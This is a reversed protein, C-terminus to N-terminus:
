DFFSWFVSFRLNRGLNPYLPVQFYESNLLNQFTLKVTANGLRANAFIDIGNNTIGETISSEINSHTLPMYSFGGKKDFMTFDAGFKVISKQIIITFTPSVTFWYLPTLQQFNSNQNQNDTALEKQLNIKFNVEFIDKEFFTNNSLITSLQVFGGVVDQNLYRSLILNNDEFRLLPANTIQRFYSNVSFIFTSDNNDYQIFVTSNQETNTVDFTYRDNSNHNNSIDFTLTENTSIQYKLKAGFNTLTTYEKFLRLGGSLSLKDFIQYHVSTFLNFRLEDVERIFYTPQGKTYILDAGNNLTLNEFLKLEFKNIFGFDFSNLNEKNSQDTDLFRNPIQRDISNHTFYLNSNFNLFSSNYDSYTILLQNRFTRENLNSFLPVAGIASYPTASLDFDVGGNLGLGHNNFIYLISLSSLTDFNLRYGTRINWSHIWTNPFIGASNQTKFGFFVNSNSDLNQAILGDISIFDSVADQFWLRSFPRKTNFKAEQINILMDGKNSLISADSGVFIDINEAIEPSYIELNINNFTHNQQNVGNILLNNSKISGLYGFNNYQGFFGLNRSYTPLTFNIIDSLATYNISKLDTKNITKYPIINLLKGHFKSPSVSISDTTKTSDNIESNDNSDLNNISDLNDIDLDISEIEPISDNLKFSYTKGKANSLVFLLSIISILYYYSLKSINM